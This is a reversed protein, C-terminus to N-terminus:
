LNRMDSKGHILEQISKESYLFRRQNIQCGNLKGTSRWRAVTSSSVQFMKAVENPKYYKMNDIVIM